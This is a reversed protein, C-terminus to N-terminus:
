METDGRVCPTARYWGGEDVEVRAHAGEAVEGRTDRARRERKELEVQGRRWAMPCWGSGRPGHMARQCQAMLRNRASRDVLERSHFREFNM